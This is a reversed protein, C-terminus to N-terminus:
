FCLAVRPSQASFDRFESLYVLCSFVAFDALLLVVLCYALLIWLSLFILLTIDLTSSPSFSSVQLELVVCHKIECLALYVCTFLGKAGELPWVIDWSMVHGQWQKRLSVKLLNYYLTKIIGYLFLHIGIM